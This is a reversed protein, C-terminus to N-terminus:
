QTIKFVTGFGGSSSLGGTGATGYLNGAADLTLGAAPTGGDSGGTFTHLITETGSADMRYVIGKATTGGASTVGYFHGYKDFLLAGGPSQGDDATLGFKHIVRESWTGNANHKLKFVVGCGEGCINTKLSHGGWQTTGYLNGNFDIALANPIAGDGGNSLGRFSYLIQESWTGDSNPSLEFVTGWGLTGGQGTTGYLNGARDIVLASRPASGDPPEGFTFITTVQGQSVKFVIGCDKGQGQCGSDSQPSVGYLNGADDSILGGVPGSYQGSGNFTYLVKERGGSIEYVTGCQNFNCVTGGLEGGGNTTGYTNGGVRAIKGMPDAGDGAVPGFDHVVTENGSPDLKFVAGGQSVAGGQATTGYLNGLKDFVLEGEPYAGDTEGQFTYLVTYTQAQVSSTACVAAAFASAFLLLTSLFRSRAPAIRCQIQGPQQM